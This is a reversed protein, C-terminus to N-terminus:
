VTSFSLFRRPSFTLNSSRALSSSYKATFSCSSISPHLVLQLLGFRGPALLLHHATWLAWALEPTVSKPSKDHVAAFATFSYPQIFALQGPNQSMRLSTRQSGEEIPTKGLDLQIRCFHIALDGRATLQAASINEKQRHYRNRPGGTHGRRM